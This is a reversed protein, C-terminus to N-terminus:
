ARNSAFACDILRFCMQGAISCLRVIPIASASGMPIPRVSPGRVRECAHSIPRPQYRRAPPQRAETRHAPSKSPFDGRCRKPSAYRDITRWRDPRCLQSSRLAHPSRGSAPVERCTGTCPRARFRQTDAWCPQCRQETGPRSRRRRFTQQWPSAAAWRGERYFLALRVLNSAPAPQHPQVSTLHPLSDVTVTRRRHPAATPVFRDPTGSMGTGPLVPEHRRQRM